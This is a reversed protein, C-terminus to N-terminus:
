GGKCNLYQSLEAKRNMETQVTAPQQGLSTELGDSDRDSPNASWSPLEHRPSKAKQVATVDSDIRSHSQGSLSALLPLRWPFMCAAAVHPFRSLAAGYRWSKDM